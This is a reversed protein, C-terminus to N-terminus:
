TPDRTMPESGTADTSYPLALDCQSNSLLVRHSCVLRGPRRYAGAYLRSESSSKVHGDFQGRGTLHSM